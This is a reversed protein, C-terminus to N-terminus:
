VIVQGVGYDTTSKPPCFHIFDSNESQLYSTTAGNLKFAIQKDGCLDPSLPSSVSVADNYTYKNKSEVTYGAFAVLNEITAPITSISTTPCPDIM